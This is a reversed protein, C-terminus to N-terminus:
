RTLAGAPATEDYTLMCSLPMNKLFEEILGFKTEGYRSKDNIKFDPHMLALKQYTITNWFQFLGSIHESTGSPKRDFAPFVYNYFLAKNQRNEPYNIWINSEKVHASSYRIGFVTNDEHENIYQVLSQLLMQPIIYEPKFPADPCAVPLSCALVLCDSFVKDTFAYRERNTLDFVRVNKKTKFLATNAYNFDPRRLEEWCVYASSGLYLSPFGSISYRENGILHSLEFPVHGMEKETTFEDYANRGARMRYLPTDMPMDFTRIESINQCFLEYFESFASSLRGSQFADIVTIFQNWVEGAKGKRQLTQYKKSIAQMRCEISRTYM